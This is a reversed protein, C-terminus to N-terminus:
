ISLFRNLNFSTRHVKSLGHNFLAKQHISTGYGKNNYFGYVPYDKDLNKMLDDRFVKAIISAAAISISKQDGKIIAKQWKKELGPICFGDILAYTNNGLKEKIKELSKTMALFTAKGIGIKNIIPVGISVISFAVSYKKILINLKERTSSSLLKSDNISTFLTHIEDNLNKINFNIIEKPFTVAGVVVPGAFAGRGVEDIGVVYEFNNKWLKKEENFDPQILYKNMLSIKKLKVM